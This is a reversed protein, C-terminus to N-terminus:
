MPAPETAARGVPGVLYNNYSAAVRAPTAQGTMVQGTLLYDGRVRLAPTTERHAM